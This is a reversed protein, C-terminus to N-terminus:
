PANPLHGPVPLNALPRQLLRPLVGHFVQEDWFLVPKPWRVPLPATAAVLMKESVTACHGPLGLQELAVGAM